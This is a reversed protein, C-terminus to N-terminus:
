QQPSTEIPLTLWFTTGQEPHSQVGVQGGHQEILMRCLYFGVGLNVDLPFRNITGKGEALRQWLAQQDEAVSGLRETHVTILAVADAVVVQVTVPQEPPAYSLVNILYNTLVQIIQQGDAHIRVAQLTPPLKLVIKRLPASRQLRVLTEQLLTLLHEEKMHMQLPTTQLALTDIMEHIVRQQLRASEMASALPEEVQEISTSVDQVQARAQQKVRALRRQALQINGMIGTLPTKLEHGALTLFNSSLHGVEQQVLARTGSAIRECLLDLCEVLLEIEIVLVRAFETEEPTYGSCVSAKFVVLMGAFQEELFLPLVLLTESGFAAAFSPRWRLDQSELVVEQHASLRTLVMQDFFMSVMLDKAARLVQAQEATFGSGAIYSLQEAEGGALLAVRRGHLVQGILDVLPQAVSSVAPSLLLPMEPVMQPDYAPLSAIAMNLAMIAEYVQQLHLTELSSPATQQFIAVTGILREEGDFLPTSQVTVSVAHGSPLHLQLESESPPSAATADMAVDLAPSDPQHHHDSGHFQTLFQQFPTGRYAAADAVEFLRLAAANFWLITGANDTIIVSEPLAGFLRSMQTCSFMGPPIQSVHPHASQRAQKKQQDRTRHASRKRM